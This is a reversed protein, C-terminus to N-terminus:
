KSFETSELSSSEQLIAELDEESLHHAGNASGSASPWVEKVLDLGERELDPSVRLGTLKKLMLFMLCATGMSWVLCSLVGVLQIFLQPLRAGLPLSAPDAIVVMLTGFVGCAGHVPIAGVVDDIGLRYVLLDYAYNHVLGAGLGIVMAQWPVVLHCSATIAVLGGLSAGILKPYFARGRQFFLAHVAGVFGSCVGAINTNFVILPLRSDVKGWSGANFGFWGFWLVLAGVVSLAYNHEVFKNEVLTGSSDYRGVRPGTLIVGALAVWAGLSHVATAGAFDVFGLNKLWPSRTSVGIDGWIWNAFIPYILGGVCAAGVLYAQLSTREAVAGSVITFATAAFTTQFILKILSEPDAGFGSGSLLDFNVLGITGVGSLIGSGFLTFTLSVTLWDLINRTAISRSNKVQVMGVELLAFGAQMFFVLAISVFLLLISAESSVNPIPTEVPM